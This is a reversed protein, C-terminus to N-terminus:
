HSVYRECFVHGCRLLKLLKGDAGRYPIGFSDVRKLKSSINSMSDSRILGSEESVQDKTAGDILGPGPIATASSAIAEGFDFSELCIPCSRTRYERQLHRAKDRDVGSLKSRQEAYQWRKRRDRYEGWAGFFFTFLAFCIVVGFRSVFDGLRDSLTPPGAQLMDCITQIARLVATGYERHSLDPKM